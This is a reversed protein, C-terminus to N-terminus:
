RFLKLHLGRNNFKAVNTINVGGQILENISNVADPPRYNTATTTYRTPPSNTYIDTYPNITTDFHIVNVMSDEMEYNLNKIDTIGETNKVGARWVQQKSQIRTKDSQINIIKPDHFEYFNTRDIKINYKLARLQLDNDELGWGWYNPFGNIKEFDYGTISLIGGLAFEFGYFHKIVGITTEYNLMNKFAPLTDIDNFVISISKYHNPYKTKIAIFGINKMAGRNFPKNDCQHIFFIEYKSQIDELLYKMYIKFHNLQPERNRYPVIFVITPIFSTDNLEDM